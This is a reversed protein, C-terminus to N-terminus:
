GLGLQPLVSRAVYLPSVGLVMADQLGRALCQVIAHGGETRVRDKYDRMHYRRTDRDLYVLMDVKEGTVAAAVAMCSQRENGRAGEEVIASDDVSLCSSGMKNIFRRCHARVGVLASYYNWGAVEGGRGFVAGRGGLDSQLIERVDRGVVVARGPFLKVALVVKEYRYGEAGEGGCSHEYLREEDDSDLLYCLGEVTEGPNPIVNALGEQGIQWRHDHLHGHGIYRSSPCHSALESLSLHTGYAFYLSQCKPKSPCSENPTPRQSRPPSPPPSPPPFPVSDTFPKHNTSM